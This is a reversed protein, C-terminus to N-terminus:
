RLEGIERNQELSHIIRQHMYGNGRCGKLPFMLKYGSDFVKSVVSSYDKGALVTIEHFNFLGKQEAQAKLEDISIVEDTKKKFTVNYQGNILDYPYLFGHKASLIVWDDFFSEAYKQCAKHFSSIYVFRAEVEGCNPLKEWVKKSGCPIICLRKM